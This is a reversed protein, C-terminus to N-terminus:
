TFFISLFLNALVISIDIAKSINMVDILKIISMPNHLYVPNVIAIIAITTIATSVYKNYGYILYIVRNNSFM